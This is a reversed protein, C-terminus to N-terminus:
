PFVRPYSVLPKLTHDTLIHSRSVMTEDDSVGTKTVKIKLFFDYYYKEVGRSVGERTNVM